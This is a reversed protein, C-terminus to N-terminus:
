DLTGLEFQLRIMKSYAGDPNQLLVDPHGEEVIKGSKLVYIYDVNRITALRHAIIISTRNEMLKQLAEQVLLESESDLASTAEDLLLIAPNKLIARAIAIRQRQGGSLKIGREGVVTDFQEPFKSIFEWANAQIAAEKVEALTADKKGYAINELITGGFLMVEQPVIALNQRLYSVDQESIDHGDITIKGKNPSYLKLLLQVITSKGAGSHGVLAVKSGSPITLNIGKLIDIEARSPYNFEVNEFKINGQIPNPAMSSELDVESPENLIDLIRESAGVTRQIQAYLDGLGSMSGGIFITFTLFTILDAIIIEGNVVLGGGFWIVLVIGGFLGIIFFSIMGGRLNSAKLALRVTEDILKTFRNVELRENTFTKVSNISQLSEEVLINAEALKDQVKKGFVRIYRGFVFSAIVIIPFTSFMFLTLKWSLFILYGTGLILTAIQRFFEAVSTSLVGQIASVDSSLRSMLDGVRNNEFFTIPSTIYKKYLIKRIDSATKESVYSFYYVRFFSFVGQFLLVVGFFLAVQNISYNSKGEMVKTMEGILIPFVLTTLTSFVLFVMGIWYYSRYPKTFAFLSLAKKFGDKSIKRKEKPAVQEWFNSNGGRAM